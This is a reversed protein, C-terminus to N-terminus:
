LQGANSYDVPQLQERPTWIWMWWYWIHSLNRLSTTCTKMHCDMLHWNWKNTALGLPSIWIFPNNLCSQHEPCLRAVLRHHVTFARVRTKDWSIHYDTFIIIIYMNYTQIRWWTPRPSECFITSQETIHMKIKNEWKRLVLKRDGKICFHGVKNSCFNIFCVHEM